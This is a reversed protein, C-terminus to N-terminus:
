AGGGGPVPAFSKAAGVGAIALGSIQSLLSPPPTTTDTSTQPSYTGSLLKSYLDAQTAPYQNQATWQANTANLENQNQTQQASGVGSLAAANQLGITNAQGALNGEANAANIGLQNGQLANTQDNQFLQTANNYATNLGTAEIGQLNTNLNQQAIGNAITARDGGFAGAQVASTDRQGQQQQFDETAQAKQVDISSQTYPNMYQSLDANLVSTPKYGAIGSLTSQANTIGTPTGAAAIGEIQANAANTDATTGAVQQNPNATYPQDAATQAKSFFDTVASQAYSPLSSTSTQTTTSPSKQTM